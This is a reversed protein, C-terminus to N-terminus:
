DKIIERWSLRGTMKIGMNLKFEAIEGTSGSVVLFPPLLAAEGPMGVEPDLSGPVEGGLKDNDDFKGDGNLDVAPYKLRGGSFPDIFNIYGSGGAECPDPDPIISSAILTPTILQVLNSRTVIREGVASEGEVKLDVVWGKKGEMDGTESESFVRVDRGSATGRTEITRAALETRSSIVADDDILGYWSQVAVSDPDTAFMFSGTGFFLFTKGFNPDSTVNNVAATVQATIPQPTTGSKATFLPAPKSASTFASGWDTANTASVDFKWVNGLLDGAYITDILGDSGAENGNMADWLLPTAMGNGGSKQTDLRALVEGDDLAIVYLVASGNPSNYGNGVVAVTEGNQLKGIQPRGLILGMDNDSAGSLEWLVDNEDFDGPTTVDLAFLGRAGRGPTAVLINQSPTLSRPSVAIEGDMYFKHTYGPDALDALKDYLMGPIYAFLEVGDNADFAHLMGDNAGIYVTDTDKVYYPSSHVIDGLVKARNRLTGGNAIEGSQEGRLYDLTAEDGLLDQQTTALADWRFAVGNGTDANLTFINRDGADDIGESAKWAPSASVGTPTVQYAFLEGDWGASSFQSQFVKSDTNLQQGNSTINGSSASREVITDFSKKLAEKLKLPNQVLFFTEPDGNNDGDWEIKLDPKKNNNRDTFGGWKAAYWLPNNLTTATVTSGPSFTQVSTNAPATAGLYPLKNCATPMTTVDCYGASQGPPVNLFYNLSENKDQAVLYVGDRNTGSIVYGINQNSGTSEYIVRVTATLTKDPNVKFEYDGIVDMDFDNGQEDAEYNVRFKVRDDSIEEVYLDVIPDTPQYRGKTRNTSAGDITKAFPVVSVKQTGLMFEFKPLPSALAVAYTDTSQTKTAPNLDNTKGFYAVSASYFSGQKTPEEPSLGRLNGLTTVTKATPAYDENSGVAGIYRPGPVGPEGATITDGLASVNLGTLDGTFSGFASGPLQDSDYSIATSSMVLMNPKACWQAKAASTAAYPDDWTAFTLGVAKDNPSSSHTYAATPTIKGAYYRLAEYMMEGIPNGWDVYDGEPMIGTRFSGKRYFYKSGGNNFDRIRLNNLNKVITAGATFQGTTANIEGKFSSVVKRLIGGSMNKDYSGTLLGFLMSENEGYDHLIGVPKYKGNPYLKCDTRFTSTCVEVRVTYDTRTGGHTGDLVPNEKSAWEWVRKTSNTVVSLWPPRNSCTDLTACSWDSGMNNTVNGFFHRRSSTPASLPTYDGIKYGDVAESTYEKAWSHGDQPVYARRLVTQTTSDVDRYGGYLVKRLADIRSTTIYNLWNGSWKGPCKGDATTSNPTFLGTNDNKNNHTYCVKSDFLGYYTISPKFRLDLTGDGDIDSADNYAEFFLTHDRGVILMNLPTASTSTILPVEPITQAAALSSLCSLVAVFLSRSANSTGPTAHRSSPATSKM